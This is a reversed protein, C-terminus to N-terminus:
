SMAGHARCARAQANFACGLSPRERAVLGWALGALAALLRGAASAGLVLALRLDGLPQVLAAAPIAVRREQPLPDWSFYAPADGHTPEIVLRQGRRLMLQEGAHLFRDGLDNLPGSHPGDGTAWVSGHAIRVLGDERPQLTVARGGVLKWTGPLAPGSQHSHTLTQSAM